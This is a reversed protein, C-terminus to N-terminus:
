FPFISLMARIGEFGVMVITNYKFRVSCYVFKNGVLFDCSCEFHFVAGEWHLQFIQAEFFYGVIAAFKEHMNYKLRHSEAILKKLHGKSLTDIDCM